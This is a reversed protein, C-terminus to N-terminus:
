DLRILVKIAELRSYVAMMQVYIVDGIVTVLIDNYNNGDDSGLISMM